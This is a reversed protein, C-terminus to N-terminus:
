NSRAQQERLAKQRAREQMSLELLDSVLMRAEFEAQKIQAPTQPNRIEDVGERRVGPAPDGGAVIVPAASVPETVVIRSQRLELRRTEGGRRVVVADSAADYSEVTFGEQTERLAIWFSRKNRSDVLNFRQDDGIVSIGSLQLAALAGDTSASTAAPPTSAPLFPSQARLAVGGVLFGLVVLGSGTNWLLRVITRM